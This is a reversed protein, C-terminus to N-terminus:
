KSLGLIKKLVGSSSKLVNLRQTFIKNMIELHIKEADSLMGDVALVQKFRAFDFDQARDLLQQYLVLAKKRQSAQLKAFYQEYAARQKKNFFTAVDIQRRSRIEAQSMGPLGAGPNISSVARMKGAVAVPSINSPNRGTTDTLFDAIAIGLIDEVPLEAAPTNRKQVSDAEVDQTEGIMYPRRRGNGSLRVKPAILGMARQLESSFAAGLQEFDKNSEIEFVSQGDAREHLIVGNKIKGTKYLTSRKVAESRITASINEISGGNNLHRVAAALDKIREDESMVEVATASKPQKKKKKYFADLMWRRINRKREDGPIKASIVENPNEIGAFKERYTLADGMEDAIFRLKATPDETRSMKEAESVTKGLKRREGVTLPRAKSLSISSGGNLAYVISDVGTNSLLGMEDNGIVDPSLASMIYTAGEMDRNDPVTRLVAASVVPELVFGDRRVMRTYPDVANGIQSVLSNVASVKRARNAATVKPIQPARSQIADGSVALAGVRRGSTTQTIGRGTGARLAQGIARGIAGPLDFLQKGCTSFRSDTFRGGYQYGEPCRYGREPKLAGFGPAGPLNGGGPTIASFVTSRVPNRIASTNGPAISTGVAQFGQLFRSSSGTLGVKFEYDRKGGLRQMSCKFAIAKERDHNPLRELFVNPRSIVISPSIHRIRTVPTLESDPCCNSLLTTKM